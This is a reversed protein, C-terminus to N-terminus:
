AFSPRASLTRAPMVRETVLNEAPDPNSWISNEPTLRAPAGGLAVAVATTSEDGNWYAGHAYAKGSHSMPQPFHWVGPPGGTRGVATPFFAEGAITEGIPFAWHLVLDGKSYLVPNGLTLMAAPHLPGGDDTHRIVVAAAMLVITKVFISPPPSSSWIKLVELILRCGLSHGVLSVVIPSGHQLGQLYKALLQASEVAPKIQNSYSLASIIKNPEDGPWTFEAVQATFTAFKEGLLGLFTAYSSMAEERSNNYGHVLILLESKGDLHGAEERIPVVPGGANTGPRRVSIIAPDTM